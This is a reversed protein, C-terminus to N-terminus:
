DTSHGPFGIQSMSAKLFDSLHVKLLHYCFGAIAYLGTSKSISNESCIYNATARFPKLEEFELM